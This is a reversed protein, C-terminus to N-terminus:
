PVLLIPQSYGVMERGEVRVRAVIRVTVNDDYEDAQTAPMDIRPIFTWPDNLSPPPAVVITGGGDSQPEVYWVVMVDGLTRGDSDTVVAQLDATGDQSLTVGGGNVTVTAADSTDLDSVPDGIYSVQQFTERSSVVEIEVRRLSSAMLTTRYGSGAYTSCPVSLDVFESNISYTFGGVGPVPVNTVHQSVWASDDSFLASSGAGFQSAAWGRLREMEREAIFAGLQRQYTKNGFQISRHFLMSMIVFGSILIVLAIIAEVLLVAHNKRIM